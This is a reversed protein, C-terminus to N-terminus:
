RCNIYVAFYWLQEDAIAHIKIIQFKECTHKYSHYKVAQLISNLNNLTPFGSAQLCPLFSAKIVELIKKKPVTM